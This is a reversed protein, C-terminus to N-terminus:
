CGGSEYFYKTGNLYLSEGKMSLKYEAENGNNFQLRLVGGSQSGSAIWHGDANSRGLSMASGSASSSSGSQYFSGNGCLVIEKRESYNTGWGNYMYILKRGSLAQGWFGSSRPQSARTSGSIKGLVSKFQKAADRKYVAIFAIGNGNGTVQTVVYAKNGQGAGQANYSASVTQGATHPQSTPVLYVGSGLPFGSAMTQQVEALSMPMAIVYISGQPNQAPEIVFSEGALAGRYGSPINISLGYLSSEVKVPGNYLRGEEIEVAYVSFTSAIFSLIFLKSIKKLISM